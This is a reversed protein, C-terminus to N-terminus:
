GTALKMGATHKLRSPVEPSVLPTSSIVLHVTAELIGISVAEQVLAM